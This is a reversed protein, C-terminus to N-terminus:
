YAKFAAGTLVDEQRGVPGFLGGSGGLRQCRTPESTWSLDQRNWDLQIILVHEKAQKDPLLELFAVGLTLPARYVIFYVLNVVSHHLSTISSSTHM